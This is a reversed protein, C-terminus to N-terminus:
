FNKVTKRLADDYLALIDDDLPCPAFIAGKDASVDYWRCHYKPLPASLDFLATNPLFGEVKDQDEPRQLRFAAIYGAESVAYTTVNAPRQSLIITPIHKSRGQTLIGNLGRWRPAIGPAGPAYKDEPTTNM